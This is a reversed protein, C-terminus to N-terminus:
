RRSGELSDQPIDECQDRDPQFNRRKFTTHMEVDERCSDCTMMTAFLEAQKCDIFSAIFHGNADRVVFQENNRLVLEKSPTGYESNATYRM